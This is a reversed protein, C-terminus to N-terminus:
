HKEKQYPGMMTGLGNWQVGDGLLIFTIQDDHPRQAWAVRFAADQKGYSQLAKGLGGTNHIPSTIKVSSLNEMLNFGYTRIKSEWYVAITELSIGNITGPAGPLEPRSPIIHPPLKLSDM